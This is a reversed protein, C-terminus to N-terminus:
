ENQVAPVLEVLSRNPQETFLADHSIVLVIRGKEVLENILRCVIHKNNKDLFNTPEDFLYVSKNTSLDHSMQALKKQGYSGNSLLLRGYESIIPEAPVYVFDSTERSRSKGNIQIEGHYRSSLGLISEIMTTKGCGNAGRILYLSGPVFIQNIPAHLAEGYENLGIYSRLQVSDISVDSRKEVPLELFRAFNTLVPKTALYDKRITAFFEAPDWFRSTYLEIASLAGITMSGHYVFYASLLTSLLIVGNLMGYSLLNDFVAETQIKKKMHIKYSRIWESIPKLQKNELFREEKTLRYQDSEYDKLKEMDHVTRETNEKMTHAFRLSLLLFTPIALTVVLTVPFSLSVMCLIIGVIYLANVVISLPVQFIFRKVLEYNQGMFQQLSGQSVHNDRLNLQKIERDLTSFISVFAERTGFGEALDVAYNLLQTLIYFVISLAVYILLKHLNKEVLADIMQMTLIPIMLFALRHLILVMFNIFLTKRSIYHIFQFM